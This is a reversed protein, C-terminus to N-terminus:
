PVVELSRQASMGGASAEIVLPGPTSPTIYACSAFGDGATWSLGLVVAGGSLAQFCVPGYEGVKWTSDTPITPVIQDIRDVIDITFRGSLAGSTVELAIPGPRSPTLKSELWYSPTITAAGPEIARLTVAEDILTTGTSSRLRHYVDYTRGIWFARPRLPDYGQDHDSILGLTEFQISEVTAASMRVSGANRGTSREIFSVTAEGDAVGRVTFSTEDREIVEIAGGDVVLDYLEFYYYTSNDDALVEYRREGGVATALDAGNEPAQDSVATLRPAHCANAEPDCIWSENEDLCTCYDEEDVPFCASLPLAAALLLWSRPM